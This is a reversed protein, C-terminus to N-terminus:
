NKLDNSFLFDPQIFYVAPLELTIFIQSIWNIRMSRSNKTKKSTATDKTRKRWTQNSFWLTTFVIASWTLVYDMQSSCYSINIKTGKIVFLRNNTTVICCNWAKSILHISYLPFNECPAFNRMKRLYTSCRSFIFRSIASWDIHTHDGYPSPAFILIVFIEEVATALLEAFNQM